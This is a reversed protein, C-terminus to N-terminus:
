LFSRHGVCSWLIISIVPAASFLRFFSESRMGLSCSTTSVPTESEPLLERAKVGDGLLAAALPLLSEGKVQAAPHGVMPPRIHLGNLAEGGAHHHILLGDTGVGAGGYAGGRVDRQQQPHQKGPHALGAWASQIM